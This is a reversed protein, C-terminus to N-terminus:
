TKSSIPLYHSLKSVHIVVTIRPLVITRFHPFSVWYFIHSLLEINRELKLSVFHWYLENPSLIVLDLRKNQIAKPCPM